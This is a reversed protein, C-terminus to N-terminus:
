IESMYPFTDRKGDLYDIIERFILNNKEDKLGSEYINFANNFAHYFEYHDRDITLMICYLRNFKDDNSPTNNIPNTLAAAKIADDISILPFEKIIDSAVKKIRDEFELDSDYEYMM